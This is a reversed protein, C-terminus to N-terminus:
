RNESDVDLQTSKEIAKRFDSISQPIKLANSAEVLSKFKMKYISKNMKNDHYLVFQSFFNSPFEQSLPKGETFTYYVMDANNVKKSLDAKIIPGMQINKHAFELKRSMLWKVSEDTMFLFLTEFKASGYLTIGYGSGKVAVFAPVSWKDEKRICVLGKGKTFQGFFLTAREIRPIVVIAKAKQLYALPLNTLESNVISTITKTASEARKNAVALKKPSIQGIAPFTVLLTLFVLNQVRLEINKM